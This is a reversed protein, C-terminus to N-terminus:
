FVRMAELRQYTFRGTDMTADSYGVLDLTLTHSGEGLRVLWTTNYPVRWYANNGITSWDTRYGTWIISHLPTIDTSGDLLKARWQAFFSTAGSAREGYNYILLGNYSVIYYYAKGSPVTLTIDTTITHDAVGGSISFSRESDDSWEQIRGSESASNSIKDPTVSGDALKDSTVGGDAIAVTVDGSTGGGTLGEGTLVSTIDGSGLAVETDPSSCAHLPDNGPAINFLLGATSSLCGTLKSPPDAYVPSFKSVLAAVSLIGVFAGLIIYKRKWLTFIISM